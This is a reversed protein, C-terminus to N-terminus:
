FLIKQFSIESIEMKYRVLKIIQHFNTKKIPKKINEFNMLKKEEIILIIFTCVKPIGTRIYFFFWFIFANITFMFM